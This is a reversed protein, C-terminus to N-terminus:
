KVKLASVARVENAYVKCGTYADGDRIYVRWASFIEDSGDAAWFLGQIEYGGNEKILDNITSIHASVVKLQDKTPLEWENSAGFYRVADYWSMVMSPQASIVFHETDTKIEVGFLDANWNITPKM